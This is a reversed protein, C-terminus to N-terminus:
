AGPSGGDAPSGSREDGGAWAVRRALSDLEARIERVEGIITNLARLVSDEHREDDDAMRDRRRDHRVGQSLRIGSVVASFSGAGVEAARQRGASRKRSLMSDVAM